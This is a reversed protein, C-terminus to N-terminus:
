KTNTVAIRFVPERKHDSLINPKIPRYGKVTGDPNATTIEERENTEPKVGLLVTNKKLKKVKASPIVFINVRM